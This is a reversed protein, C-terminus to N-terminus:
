FEYTANIFIRRGMWDYQSYFASNGETDLEGLNLTTVRPPKKDFANAVGLVTKFGSDDWDYTMSFSHYLVSNNSIKIDVQEGRYTATNKGLRDFYSKENSVSGIYNVNWNFLWNDKELSLNYTGVHKPDGFEGNTDIITDAFLAQSDDTQFTHQTDFRLVGYDTEKKYSLAVDFGKNIQSAINIFSDRVDVVRQDNPDRDFQDCIPDTPFFESAYCRALINDGGLQDVEGLIEFDFHDVSISLDAFEPTWVLGVSKSTSTEAELVGAGGGTYITADIAGGAYDPALGDAACNDATTQSIANSALNNGWSICPDIARQGVFDTQDALYLEFLAPSRFSTGKSARVRWEDNLSWKLGVKYTNGSGYSDVDTYRGSLELELNKVLMADQLLPVKMEAYVAITKDSGATIGASSAGWANSRRSEEGPVDEIEDKQYSAGLVVGVPGAPMEFLDGSVYAELTSQKYVTRGKDQGFLFTRMEPSINGALFQPDLWPIDICSVGRVSTSSGACSEHTWNQDKVSDNYIIDNRYEGDSRSNQYSVDYYWDGIDGTLGVVFRSYDVTQGSDSHDTIATPSFWQAGTWGQSLPNGDFFDENYIYSWFQRYGNAESKRRSLLLESYVTMNDTLEYDAQAYFSAIEIQPILSEQDQFPHDANTVGDSARDYAVPFWGPPTVMYDPNTPDVAFGPIYNGLDGDYDYQAKSGAPVNGGEGQYDYIWVHGWLLDDCHAKGTRPDIPDARNGTSPDFIFSEGCRFYDRDGKALESQKNYDATVRFSGRNFTSGYTGNIRFQEGGSESPQSYSADVNGGDGKKTIINIVGAVADSGYVSSAGDKLIEVREVLSLPLVNFDFSSVGGRTGAPGARRGNLLVLTRNAGLGRLSLTQSGEGGNQVFATSSAATVQQSGSAVTSSRLLAGIDGLGKGVATDALIIDVPRAEEFGGSRIRSGTIVIKEESNNAPEDSTEAEQAFAASANAALAFGVAYALPRKKLNKFIPKMTHKDKTKIKNNKPIMLIQLSLIHARPITAIYFKQQLQALDCSVLMKCNTGGM